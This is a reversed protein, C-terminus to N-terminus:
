KQISKSFKMCFNQFSISNYPYNQKNKTNKRRLIWMEVFKSSNSVSFINNLNLNWKQHTNGFIPMHKKQGMVWGNKTWDPYFNMFSNRLGSAILLAGFDRNQYTLSVPVPPRNPNSIGEFTQDHTRSQRDVSIEFVLVLSCWLHSPGHRTLFAQFKSDSM